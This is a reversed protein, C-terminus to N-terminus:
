MEGNKEYLAIKKLGDKWNYKVEIGLQKMMTCDAVSDPEYMRKKIAGFCLESESGLIGKLYEVMEKISVAEGTGLPLELYEPLQPNEVIKVISKVVDGIYIIDRKQDGETLLIRENNKLKHITDPIFRDTPEDEGYFNELEINCIQIPQGMDHQRKGYWQCIESFKQKSVSYANFDSPLGTGMTVYKKIGGKLCALFIQLPAWLNAQYIDIEDEANRPYRCATNIFCDFPDNVLVREIDALNCMQVENQINILNEMSSETRKLVLVQHGEQILVKALKSGLYGTAGLIVIKM